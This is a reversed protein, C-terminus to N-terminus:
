RAASSEKVQIGLERPEPLQLAGHGVGAQPGVGLPRALDHLFDLPQLAPHLGVLRQALPEVLRPLEGLQGVGLRVHVQLQLTLELLLGLPDRRLELRELELVHELAGVVRAVRQQGDM